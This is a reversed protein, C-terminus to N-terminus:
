MGNVQFDFYEDERPEIIVQWFCYGGDNLDVLKEKWYEGYDIHCFSNVYILKQGTKSVFPILQFFYDSFNEAIPKVDYETKHDSIVEKILLKTLNIDNETPEWTEHHKYDFWINESQNLLVTLKDSAINQCGVTWYSILIIFILRNKM